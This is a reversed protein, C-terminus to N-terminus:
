KLVEIMEENILSNTALINKNKIYENKGEFDTIYGGAEKVL